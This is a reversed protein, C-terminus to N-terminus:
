ESVVVCTIDGPGYFYLTANKDPVPMTSQLTVGKAAADFEAIDATQSSFFSVGDEFCEMPPHEPTSANASAILAASTLLRRQM